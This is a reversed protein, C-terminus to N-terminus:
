KALAGERAARRAKLQEAFTVPREEPQAQPPQVPVAARGEVTATRDTGAQGQAPFALRKKVDTALQEMVGDLGKSHIMSSYRGPDRYFTTQAFDTFERLEPYRNGFTQWAREEEEQARRAAERKEWEGIVEQKVREFAKKPDTYILEAWDDDPQPTAQAQPQPAAPQQYRSLTETVIGRIDDLTFGEKQPAPIPEQVQTPTGPEIDDFPSDSPDLVKVEQESM